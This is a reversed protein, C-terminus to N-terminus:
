IPLTRSSSAEVLDTLTNFDQNYAVGNNHSNNHHMEIPNNYFSPDEMEEDFNKTRTNM